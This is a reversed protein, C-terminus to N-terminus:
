EAESAVASRVADLVVTKIRDIEALHRQNIEIEIGAYRDAPFMNRCSTTLAAARGDYPQNVEAVMGLERMRRVMAGGLADELPYDPDFMVGLSVRRVVGEYEPTFSHMAVHLTRREAEVRRRVEDVVARWYPRHYTEIRARRQEDSLDENHPVRLGFSSAPVVSPLDDPRNLDAVLRSWKGLFLPANLERALHTAVEGAGPDWAHHDLLAAPPVGLGNLEPPIANSAHECSVIVDLRGAVIARSRM